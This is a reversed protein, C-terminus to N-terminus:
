ASYGGRGAVRYRGPYLAESVPQPPVDAAEGSREGCVPRDVPNGTRPKFREDEDSVAAAIRESRPEAELIGTRVFGESDMRVVRRPEVGPFSNRRIDGSIGSDAGPEMTRGAGRQREIGLM